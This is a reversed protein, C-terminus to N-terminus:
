STVGGSTNRIRCMKPPTVTSRSCSSNSCPFLPLLCAEAVAVVLFLSAEVAVAVGLDGLGESPIMMLSDGDALIECSGRQIHQDLILMRYHVQRQWFLIVGNRFKYSGLDQKINARAPNKDEDHYKPIVRINIEGPLSKVNFAQYYSNSKAPILIFIDHGRTSSVHHVGCDSYLKWILPAHMYRQLKWLVDDADPEFLRKLDVWLAKKIDKSPVVSSFKEKVLNWLTVLDERNFGKLIDEFMQYAKTIGAVRIIKWYLRLGETHIEWDIIPYKVKDYTMGRFFEMKYGAMNQEAVDSWDINEEKNDYQRQLELAREMNAKEQKDMAAAKQVKEDHLKKFRDEDDFIIPEAASVLKPASVVSVEKSAANVDEQNLMEQSEADMAVVEENTEVDLVTDTSSEVRQTIGVRRLRKLGLSKSKKKRELKKVRKKLYNKFTFASFFAKYFTLKPPPKEYRMRALEKFIEDNPLCEVEDADDLHFDTSIIAESVVVKKGNILARLQVDDNVKKVLLMLNVAAVKLLGFLM